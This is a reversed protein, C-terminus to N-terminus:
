RLGFHARLIERYAAAARRTRPGVGPRRAILGQVEVVEQFHRAGDSALTAGSAHRRHANLPRPDFALAGRELLRVYFLWDGAVKFQAVADGYRAMTAVFDERRFLAASVNPITNKVGLGHALEEELSARFSTTWRTSSIDGTYALYDPALEAGEADIQRSQCYAMAVSPAAFMPALTALLEPAADDDAEAIWLYDGNALAAGAAWQKFPSGSNRAARVLRLPVPLSARLTELVRVSDDTSADDLVILEYIPLTQAVISQLRAPLYHAYNFNPVVASVRPLGIGLWRLLEFVYPRFAGQTEVHDRQRKAVTAHANADSLLLACLDAFAACDGAPALGGGTQAILGDLGGTGSFGVVPVGAEFAELVVSPYPDESSTLAFVDAAAYWADTDLVRGPFHFHAPAGSAEIEDQVADQFSPDHHGIWVFHARADCAVVRAGARVFADPGKRRETFGAGLVIRADTPLGLMERIQSRAIARADEGRAKSRKYLGQPRIESRGRLSPFMGVFADRVVEAPFVLVEAADAMAAAPAHLDYHAIMGPLEHVLGLGHFGHRRLVALFEGCVVTNAVAFRYGEARLRAALADMADADRRDVVYCTCVERYADILSGEGHLVVAVDVGLARFERALNLALFQAGHPHADHSVLVLRRNATAWAAAEAVSPADADRPPCQRARTQAQTRWYDPRDGFLCAKAWSVGARLRRLM